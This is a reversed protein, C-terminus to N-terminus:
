RGGLLGAIRDEMHQYFPNHRLRLIQGDSIRLAGSEGRLTLAGLPLRQDGNENAGYFPERRTSIAPRRPRPLVSKRAM